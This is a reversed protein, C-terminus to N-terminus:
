RNFGLEGRDCFGIRVIAPKSHFNLRRKVILARGQRMVLYHGLQPTDDVRLAPGM